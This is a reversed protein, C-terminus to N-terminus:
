KRRVEELVRFYHRLFHLADARPLTRSKLPSLLARLWYVRRDMWPKPSGTFHVVRIMRGSGASGLRFEGSALYNVISSWFVNYEDPLHLEDRDPWESLYSNLVNQDGCPIGWEGCLRVVEPIRSRIAAFEADNPEIVMIGSNFYTRGDLWDEPDRGAVASFHPWGFLHDLNGNVYMDGDLYVIKEFRTLSLIKIKEFTTRWRQGAVTTAGLETVMEADDRLLKIGKARLRFEIATSVEGTVLVYFDYIPDTRMLSDHLVLIGDVFSDTSLVSVYAFRDIHDSSASM